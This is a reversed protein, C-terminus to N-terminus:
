GSVLTSVVAEYVGSGNAGDAVVVNQLDKIEDRLAPDRELANAVFWFVSVAGAVQMDERSDGVAICQDVQYGRIQMHLQVAKLKSAERPILHYARVYELQALKESRRHVLGNDILKLHGFGHETLLADVAELDVLGRFLHSIDRNLHWPAHYELSDSFETLLLDPVGAEAVQDFISKDETTMSGCLLTEEGDVVVASGVEYIYSTGGLLRSDESVQDKRRGSMLVVEVGARHCAEVAKAGLMTPNGEGDHFLSARMGLLTGDLDVYVCKLSV